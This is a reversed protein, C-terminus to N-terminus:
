LNLFQPLKLKPYEKKLSDIALSLHGKAAFPQNTNYFEAMIRLDEAMQAIRYNKEVEKDQLMKYNTWSNDVTLKVNANQEVEKNKPIDFYKLSVKVSPKKRKGNVVKFKALVVQTLGANM